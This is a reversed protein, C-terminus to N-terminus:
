KWVKNGSPFALKDCIILFVSRIVLFHQDDAFLISPLSMSNFTRTQQMKQHHLKTERKMERENKESDLRM